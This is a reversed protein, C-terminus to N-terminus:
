REIPVELYNWVDDMLESAKVVLVTAEQSPPLSDIDRVLDYCKALLPHKRIDIPKGTKNM